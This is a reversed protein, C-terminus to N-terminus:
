YISWNEAYCASYEIYEYIDDALIPDFSTTSHGIIGVQMHTDINPDNKGMPSFSPAAGNISSKILSGGDFEMTFTNWGPITMNTDDLNTDEAITYYVLGNFRELYVTNNRYGFRYYSEQMLPDSDNIAILAVDHENTSDSIVCCIKAEIIAKVFGIHTRDFPTGGVASGLGALTHDDDAVRIVYSGSPPPFASPFDADSTVATPDDDYRDIKVFGM